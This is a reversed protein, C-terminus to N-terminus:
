SINAQEFNVRALSYGAKPKKQRGETAQCMLSPTGCLTHQPTETPIILPDFVREFICSVSNRSHLQLSPDATGASFGCPPMVQCSDQFKQLLAIYSFTKANRCLSTAAPLTRRVHTRFNRCPPLLSLPKTAGSSPIANSLEWIVRNKAPIHCEEKRMM